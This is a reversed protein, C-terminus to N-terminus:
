DEDRVATTAWEPYPADGRMARWLIRNLADEPAKDPRSFDMKACALMDRYRQPGLAAKTDGNLQDLPVQNAV